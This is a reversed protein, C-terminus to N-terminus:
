RTTQVSRINVVSKSFLTFPPLHGFTPGIRVKRLSTKITQSLGVKTESLGDVVLQLATHPFVARVTRLSPLGALGSKGVGIISGGWGPSFHTGNPQCRQCGECRSKLRVVRWM